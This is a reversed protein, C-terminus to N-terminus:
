HHFLRLNTHAFVMGHEDAAKVCEEDMVSGSPAALYKVGSRRARHVNDPFPFFADSSCAVGDLKGLFEKREAESLSKPVETFLGEWQTREGGELHEGGVFLDIANAKEARKVGPRFPLALVRPHHRLWWLDAKHGALRTCHIRSQQGAGLGVIAGRLAYAVSNSQTYKLALTAVILDTIASEPLEKNKSVVNGFLSKEIKADNRRQQLYVGYVQRTEIEAPKYDPNIQLVCYKGGKKKRLVNLAEPSYGPAIIGDSVERSIIRATALDCPASLAIFDGFSSMRDAGRARAYACALPTLPEKLDDVGYVQKEVNDLEIGVAAGAPSVHKFSAAAPLGLAEQLESVLAYSNLADLLNIYGPSGVLTKFPLEGDKVFAQAPAQHPNAGYRLPIRQVPGVLGEGPSAYQERFYGSIAEDYAATMEFAKLALGKRMKESEADGEKLANGAHLLDLFPKYDRPDSLVFVRSHNKAAARLLTVGGIDIEEIASALTCNPSAITSAFPYLNCVVISIPAIGQASLDQEDSPLNRALIGGHVAPHLTKVRGGLMEPAKTVDSVDKIPIGVDRIKKATGGSGLLQVGAKHLGEAFELLGSKDYVSLIAIPAQSSMRHSSSSPVRRPTRIKYPRTKVFNLSIVIHKVENERAMEGSMDVTQGPYRAKKEIESAWLAAGITSTFTFFISALPVLNLVNAATGFAIYGGKNQKIFSERQIDDFGKLQYYRSHYSPAIKRGQLVLFVGTGVLPILNLPLMFLYEVIGSPSFKQLPKTLMKGLKKTGASKSGPKLERGRSVLTEQGESVLTADFVDYLAHELLYARAIANIIVSSESLVLAAATIPGAFPGDTFSLVAAQPIYTFFFMPVVVGVSLVLCPLIRSLLPPWLSPRRVFYLVGLPPYLYSRSYLAQKSEQAVHLARERAVDVISSM